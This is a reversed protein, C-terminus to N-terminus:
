RVGITSSSCSVRPLGHARRRRRVLFEALFYDDNVPRYSFTNRFGWSDNLQRAYAVQLNHDYSEAFDFPTRYNRDRPVDPFFNEVAAGRLRSCSRFAPTATSAIATSRTTSTSRTTTASGGPWRRRDGPRAEDRQAPLRGQTEAGVDLRYLVADSALRGTAGFTGRTM